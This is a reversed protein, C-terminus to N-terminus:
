GTTDTVAWGAATERQWRHPWAALWARAEDDTMTRCHWRRIDPDTYAAHVAPLDNAQWPRLLLDGAPIDPLPHRAVGGPTGGRHHAAAHPSGAAPVPRRPATVTPTPAPHPTVTRSLTEVTRRAAPKAVPHPTPM